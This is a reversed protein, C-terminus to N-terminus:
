GFRYVRHHCYPEKGTKNYYNQHYSEAPYFVSAPLLETVVEYGRRKLQAVLKESIEKQKESLYFIASRYQDGIDPGQGDKQTPDHIEFFFKALIEYDILDPDFIVEVAEAHGTKGSCVEEYTPDVVHGGTYGSRVKIVGKLPQMLHEVGWFCGGAFLAREYREETFAPVFSLSLSNVCHRTNKSTLREGIFVHGLHADCRSCRIEVREGDPDPLRTVAGEIEEDFSPWGCGSSFKDKSLYLSADCRRCVFVGEEQFRDYVGSGPLETGAHSIIREEEPSLAHYRYM